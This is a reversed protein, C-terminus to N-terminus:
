PGPTPAGGTAPETVPPEGGSSSSSAQTEPPKISITTPDYTGYRPDVTVKADQLARSLWGRYQVAQDRAALEQALMSVDEFKSPKRDTIKFIAFSGQNNSIPDSVGGTPVQQLTPLVLSNIQSPYGCGEDGGKGATQEDTSYQQALTAFDAGAKAQAAVSNATNEDGVQIESVCLQVFEDPHADFYTRAVDAGCPQQVLDGQLLWEDVYWGELRNRYDEPFGALTAEGQQVDGQGLNQVLDNKAAARCEDNAQLNRRSVEAHTIAFQMQRLLVQGVFGADYTGPASGVVAEGQQKFQNDIDNRYNPNANIANLEDVVDRTTVTADNVTAAPANSTEACGAALACCCLVLLLARKM